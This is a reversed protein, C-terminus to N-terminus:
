RDFRVFKDPNEKFAKILDEAEEKTFVTAGNITVYNIIVEDSIKWYSQLVLRVYLKILGFFLSRYVYYVTDKELVKGYINTKRVFCKKKIGFKM